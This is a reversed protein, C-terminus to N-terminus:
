LRKGSFLIDEIVWYDEEMPYETGCHPCIRQRVADFSAGCSHCNVSTISFGPKERHAINRCITVDILDGTKRIKGKEESYNIWWTRITLHLDDGQRKVNRLCMGNTYTMELINEFRADRGKGRYATLNQPEGAFVAMRILAVLQGEFLDYSFNPDYGTMMKRIRSKSSLFAILPLHKMGDRQFLSALMFVAAVFWGLIGGGILATLYATFLAAPLNGKSSILSGPICILLVIGMSAGILVRQQTINRAISDSRIFYTNIVRPFLGKIRFRTKCYPCGGVLQDVSSVYGCNPCTIMLHATEQENPSHAIIEYMVQEVNRRYLVETGRIFQLDRSINEYAMDTTYWASKRSITATGFSKGKAPYIRNRMHIRKEDLREKQLKLYYLTDGDCSVPEEEKEYWRNLQLAMQDFIGRGRDWEPVYERFDKVERCFRKLFPIGLICFAVGAGALIQRVLLSWDTTICSALLSGTMLLAVGKVLNTTDAQRVKEKRGTMALDGVLDRLLSM